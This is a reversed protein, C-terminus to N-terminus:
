KVRYMEKVIKVITSLSLGNGKFDLIIKRLEEM